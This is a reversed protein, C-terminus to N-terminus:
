ACETFVYRIFGMGCWRCRDDDQVDEFPWDHPCREGPKLAPRPREASPIRSRQPDELERVPQAHPTHDGADWQAEFEACASCVGLGEEYDVRLWYCGDECAHFDDCGCGICSALVGIATM